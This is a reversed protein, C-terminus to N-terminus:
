ADPLGAAFDPDWYRYEEGRYNRLVVDEGLSGVVSNVSVPIKGGGGPADIMYMPVAYGTTHGHLAELIEVGKRIPTRFHMSGLVPDCQHMYYPRCRLRLLGQNLAMMTEADDNVGKLLVTQGGMVVGADALRNMAVEVEPTLEDPHIVHVSMFVPHYMRVMACFAETIRMPLVVPVKTGIRLFEVHPIGALRELLWELRDDALILPDGGSILVDRIEPRERIYDLAKEWMERKPLFEGGGVMRARTCYRCYTACFDTVLFLVKDPYTHVLGPLPSHADEGLPDAREDPGVEFEAMSPVKTRRLGQEADDPDLLGAYYPTVGLPLMGQRARIGAKEDETLRLIRAIGAEDRIRNRLQWRWDDWDADTAEPWFKRRFHEGSGCKRMVNMLQVLTSGDVADIRM